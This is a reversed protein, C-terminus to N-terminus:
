KDLTNTQIINKSSFVNIPGDESMVIGMYNADSTSHTSYDDIFTKTSNYRSGRSRDGKSVSRGDLITGFSKICGDPNMVIAGDVHSLKVLAEKHKILSNNPSNYIDFLNMINSKDFVNISRYNSNMRSIFEEDDTVIVIAGHFMEENNSIDNLFNMFVSSKSDDNFFTEITKKDEKSIKLKSEIFYDGDNYEILFKGKHNIKFHNKGIFIIQLESKNVCCLSDIYYKNESKTDEHKILLSIDESTIELLKRIIKLNKEEFYIRQDKECDISILKVYDSENDCYSISGKCTNKEYSLSSLITIEELKKNFIMHNIRNVITKKVSEAIVEYKNELNAYDTSVSNLFDRLFLAITDELLMNSLSRIYFHGYNNDIKIKDSIYCRYSPTQIDGEIFNILDRIDENTDLKFEDILFNYLDTIYEITKHNYSM